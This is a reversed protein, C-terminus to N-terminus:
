IGVPIKIFPHPDYGVLEFDEPRFAFIDEVDPNMLLRPLPRPERELQPRVPEVQNNYVHTDETTHIFTGPKLGTVQALMMLLLCYSTINFPVGIPVDASRQVMHLHLEGKELDVYCKFDGHCPALISSQLTAPNYAIVKHRRSGPSRKLDRVLRAIQNVEGGNRDPWHIWNPGYLPGVDGEELSYQSAVEKTAWDDWFHVGHQHLFDIRSEGTLFWLLEVVVGKFFVKKTTLIPFAEASVPYRHTRVFVSIDGVGQPTEARPKGNTLVDELLELYQKM